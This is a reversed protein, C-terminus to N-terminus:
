PIFTTGNWCHSVYTAVFTTMNVGTNLLFDSSTITNEFGFADELIGCQGNTTAYCDSIINNSSSATANGTVYIGNQTNDNFHCGSITNQLTGFLSLGSWAALEGTCGVITNRGPSFGRNIAIEFAFQGTSYAVSNCIKNDYSAEAILYGTGTVNTVQCNNILCRSSNDLAIGHTCNYILDGNFEARASAFAGMGDAANGNQSFVNTIKSDYNTTIAILADPVGPNVNLSQGDVTLDSVECRVCQYNLTLIRSNAVTLQLITSKGAGELKLNPASMLIGYYYGESGLHMATIPYTGPTVYVIGGGLAGTANLAQEIVIGANTGSFSNAGWQNKAYYSTSDVYVTYTPAGAITGGTLTNQTLSSSQASTFGINYALYSMSGSFLIMIAIFYALVKRSVQLHKSLM